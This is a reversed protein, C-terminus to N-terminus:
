ECTAGMAKYLAKIGDVQMKGNKVFDKLVPQDKVYQDLNMKNYDITVTSVVKGDKNEINYKYGGYAEDTKSYMENLQKEFASLVESNDATVSETTEVSDVNDGKYNIVYKAELTYGSAVNNQNSTCTIKGTKEKGCGTLCLALIPLVLISKKM